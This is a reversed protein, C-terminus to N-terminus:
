DFWGTLITHIITIQRWSVTKRASAPQITADNINDGYRDGENMGAPKEIARRKHDRLAYNEVGGYIESLHKPSCSVSSWLLAPHPPPHPPSHEVFDLIQAPPPSRSPLQCYYQPYIEDRPHQNAAHPRM